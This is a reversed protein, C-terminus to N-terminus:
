SMQEDILRDASVMAQDWCDPAPCRALRISPYLFSRDGSQGWRWDCPANLLVVCPVGLAGCLHAMATDVTLVLDMSEVVKLTELWDGSSTLPTALMERDVLERVPGDPPHDTDLQLSFFQAQFRQKWLPLYQKLHDFPLDRLRAALEPQPAQHRGAMWVLGIRPTQDREVADRCRSLSCRQLSPQDPRWGGLMLPAFWLGLHATGSQWPLCQPDMVEVQCNSPLSLRQQVVRILSARVFLRLNDVRQSIAEVWALNQIADGFGQDHWLILEEVRQGRWLKSFFSSDNWSFPEIGIGSLLLQQANRDLPDISLRAMAFNMLILHFQVTATLGDKRAHGICQLLEVDNLQGVSLCQELACRQQVLAGDLDNLARLALSLNGRARPRDLLRIQEEAFVKAELPRRQYLRLECASNLLLSRETEQLGPLALGVSLWHDASAYDLAAMQLVALNNLTTPRASNFKLALHYAREAQLNSNLRQHLRGLRHLAQDIPFCENGWRLQDRLLQRARSFSGEAELQDLDAGMQLSETGRCVIIAPVETLM